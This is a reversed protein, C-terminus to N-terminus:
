VWRDDGPATAVAVTDGATTGSHGSAASVGSFAIVAAAIGGMVGAVGRVFSIRKM